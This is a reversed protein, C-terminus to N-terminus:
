RFDDRKYHFHNMYNVLRMIDIYKIFARKLRKIFRYLVDKGGEEFFTWEIRAKDIEKSETIKKFLEKKLKKIILFNTRLFPQYRVM